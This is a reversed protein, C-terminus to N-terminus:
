VNSRLATAPVMSSAVQAPYLAALISLGFGALLSLFGAGILGLAAVSLSAAMLSFGYTFGYLLISFLAGSVAGILGGIAGMLGSEILFMTRVFSSLAGLCKMTGIERFRETVSMLMANTIGMVTVLLSIIVIWSSRFQEKRAEREQEELLEESPARAMGVTTVGEFTPPNEIPQTWALIKQRASELQQQWDINPLDGGMVLLASSEQTLQSRDVIDVGEQIEAPLRDRAAVSDVRWGEAGDKDLKLLVRTEAENLEGVPMIAFIRGEAPGSEATLFNVMRNTEWRLADEAAVGKKLAQGTLISMLFAIGCVVGTVTVVSRGFRIRIGQMVVEFAIRLPLRVQRPIHTQSSTTTPSTM